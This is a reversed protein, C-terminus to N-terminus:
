FTEDCQEQVNDSSNQTRNALLSTPSTDPCFLHRSQLRTQMDRPCSTFVPSFNGRSFPDLQVATRETYICYKVLNRENQSDHCFFILCPLHM